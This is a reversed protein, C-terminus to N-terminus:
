RKLSAAKTEKKEIERIEARITIIEKRRSM